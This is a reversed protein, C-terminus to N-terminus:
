GLTRESVMSDGFNGRMGEDMCDHDKFARRTMYYGCVCRCFLRLFDQESLGPCERADLKRLLEDTKHLPRLAPAPRQPIAYANIDIQPM